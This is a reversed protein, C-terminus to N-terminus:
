RGRSCGAEDTSALRSGDAYALTLTFTWARRCTTPAENLYTVTRRRGRGSTIRKVPVTLDFKTTAFPAPPSGDPVPDFSVFTPQTRPNRVEFDLETIAGAFPGTGQAFAILTPNGDRATGNFLTVTAPIPTAVGAGRADVEATGTGVRAAAPCRSPRDIDGAGTPLPCQPFQLGNARFGRPLGIAVTAVSRPPTANRSGYFSHFSVAVGQRASRTSSVPPFVDVDFVSFEAFGNTTASGAGAAAPLAAAVVAAVALPVALHRSRM